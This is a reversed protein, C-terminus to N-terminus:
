GQLTRPPPAPLPAGLESPAPYSRRHGIEVGFRATTGYLAIKHVKSIYNGGQNDEIFITLSRVNAKLFYYSIQKDELHLGDDERYGQKPPNDITHGSKQNLCKVGRWDILNVLDAQSRHIVSAM